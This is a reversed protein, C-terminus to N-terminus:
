RDSAGYEERFLLCDDHMHGDFIANSSAVLGPRDTQGSRNLFVNWASFYLEQLAPSTVEDDLFVALDDPVLLPHAIAEGVLLVHDVRKAVAASRDM